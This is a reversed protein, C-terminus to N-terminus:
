IVDKPLVVLSVIMIICGRRTPLAVDVPTHRGVSPAHVITPDVSTAPAPVPPLPGRPPTVPAVYPAESNQPLAQAISLPQRAPAPFMAANDQRIREAAGEPIRFPQQDEAPHPYTAFHPNMEALSSNFFSRAPAPQQRPSPTPTSPSTPQSVSLRGYPVPNPPWSAIPARRVATSLPSGGPNGRFNRLSEESSIPVNM